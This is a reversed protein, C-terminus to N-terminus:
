EAAYPYELEYRAFIKRLEGSERLQALGSDYIDALQRGKDTNAFAMYVNEEIVTEIRYASTDFGVRSITDQLAGSHDLFYDFRGAQLMNLGQESDVVEFFDDVTVELNEHYDYGRVWALQANKLSAQGSWSGNRAGSFIAVTREKDIPMRPTYLYPKGEKETSYTGYMADAKRNELLHLARKYPVFEIEVQIGRPQYIARTIDLFLGTGDTNTYLDWSETAISISAPDPNAQPNTWLCLLAVLSIGALRSKLGPKGPLSMLTNKIQM